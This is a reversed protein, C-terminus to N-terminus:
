LDIKGGEFTCYLELFTHWTVLLRPNSADLGAAVLIRRNISPLCGM